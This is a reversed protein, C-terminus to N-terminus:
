GGAMADLEAVEAKAATLGGAEEAGNFEVVVVVDDVLLKAEPAAGAEEGKGLAQEWREERGVGIRFLDVAAKRLLSRSTSYDRAAIPDICLNPM